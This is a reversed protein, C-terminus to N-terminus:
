AGSDHGNGLHKQISDDEDRIFSGTLGAMERYLTSNAGDAVKECFAPAWRSLHDHIFDREIRMFRRAETVDGAKWADAERGTIEQMFELEVSIHDPLGSYDGVCEFGCKATFAVVESTAKGWLAGERQAAEYPPIHKGPGM